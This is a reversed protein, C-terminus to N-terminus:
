TPWWAPLCARPPFESGRAGVRPSRAGTPCWSATASSTSRRAPRASVSSWYTGDARTNAVFLPTLRVAARALRGNGLDLGEDRQNWVCLRAGTLRWVLGCSVNPHAIYPLLLDPKAQRLERAFRLYTAPWAPGCATTPPAVQRWPLGAAECHESVPGPGAFCWVQVDAGEVVRLERALRIAQRESGGLYPSKLVVITRLGAM